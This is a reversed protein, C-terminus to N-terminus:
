DPERDADEQMGGVSPAPTLTDGFVKMLTAVCKKQWEAFNWRLPSFGGASSRLRESERLAGKVQMVQPLVTSGAEACCPSSLCRVTGQILKLSEEEM